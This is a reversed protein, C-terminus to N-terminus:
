SGGGQWQERGNPRDKLVKWYYFDNADTVREDLWIYHGDCMLYCQGGFQGSNNVGNIPDDLTPARYPHYPCSRGQIGSGSNNRAELSWDGDGNEGILITQAPVPIDALTYCNKGNNDEYPMTIRLNIGYHGVAVGLKTGALFSATQSASWTPYPNKGSYFDPVPCVFVARDKVYTGLRGRWTWYVWDNWNTENYGQPLSGDYDNSYAMMAKALQGLNSLCKSKRAQDKARSFVPFLVAALIAIIAIVVLLEILTFGAKRHRVM